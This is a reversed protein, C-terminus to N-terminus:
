DYNENTQILCNLCVFSQEGIEVFVKVCAYPPSLKIDYPLFWNFYFILELYKPFVSELHKLKFTFTLVLVQKYIVVENM